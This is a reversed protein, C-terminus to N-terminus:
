IPYRITPGNEPYYNAIEWDTGNFKDWNNSVNWNTNQRSRFGNLSQGSGIFNFGLFILISLVIGSTFDRGM